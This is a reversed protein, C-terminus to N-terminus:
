RILIMKRTRIFNDAELKYFYVGSAMGKADWTYKYNGMTLSTSVLTAVERGNIDYVKLSVFGGNTIAFRINTTPNFPNPYNQELAYSKLNGAIPQPEIGLPGLKSEWAGMDPNSGVPYPRARGNIDESPSNAIIGGGFDYVDIGAGICLSNNSLSDVVLLPDDDINNALWNLTGGNTVEISDVGFRIDSYAIEMTGGKVYVEQAFTASNGWSITNLLVSKLDWLWIGGATDAINETLTNNIIQTQYIQPPYEIGFIGGGWQAENEVIINNTISYNGNFTLMGGGYKAANGQFINKGITSNNSEGIYLGGGSSDATNNIFENEQILTELSRGDYIGGGFGSSNREFKNDTISLGQTEIIAIGGASGLTSVFNEIITNGQIISPAKPYRLRMGGGVPAIPDSAQNNKLTNNLIYVVIGGYIDIGGGYGGEADSLVENNEIINNTIYLQREVGVDSAAHIGGGLGHDGGHCYNGRIINSDIRGRPMYIGGGQAGENVAFCSDAEILNKEIITYFNNGFPFTGIGGGRALNSYRISNNIVKNHMIRAGSAYCYIGGGVRSDGSITGNGGTITFGCLVSTTDEGSFFSVVSGRDPNSPQSGNIITSDIHVSDSDLLFYSAVTIAKGKFYINEYYLSEAVLVTDGNAAANIGAQISPQDAPVHIIGAM